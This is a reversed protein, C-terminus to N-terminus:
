LTTNLLLLAFIFMSLICINRFANKHKVIFPPESFEVYTVQPEPIFGRNGKSEAVRDNLYQVQTLPKPLPAVKPVEPVSPISEMSEPMGRMEHRFLRPRGRPRPQASHELSDAEAKLNM